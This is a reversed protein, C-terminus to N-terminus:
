DQIVCEWNENKQWESTNFFLEKAENLVFFEPRSTISTKFYFSHDLSVLLSNPNKWLQIGTIYTQAEQWNSITDIAYDSEINTTNTYRTLMEEKTLKNTYIDKEFTTNINWNFRIAKIRPTLKAWSSKELYSAFLTKNIKDYIFATIINNMPFVVKKKELSAELVFPNISDEYNYEFITYTRSWNTNNIDESIIILNNWILQIYVPNINNYELDNESIEKYFSKNKYIQISPKKTDKNEAIYAFLKNSSFDSSFTFNFKKFKYSASYNTINEYDNEDWFIDHFQNKKPKKTSNLTKYKTNSKIKPVPNYGTKSNKISWVYIANESQSYYYVIDNNVFQMESIKNTNYDELLVKKWYEYDTKRTYWYKKHNNNDSISQIHYYKNDYLNMFVISWDNKYFLNWWYNYNYYKPYDSALFTNSSSDPAVFRADWLYYNKENSLIYKKCSVSSDISQNTDQSTKTFNYLYNNEYLDITKQSYWDHAKLTPLDLDFTYVKLWPTELWFWGFYDWTDVGVKWRLSLDVEFDSKYKFNSLSAGYKQYVWLDNKYYFKQSNWKLNLVSTKSDSNINIDTVEEDKIKTDMLDKCNLADWDIPVSSVNRCEYSINWNIYWNAKLDWSIHVGYLVIELWIENWKVTWDFIKLKNSDWFPMKKSSWWDKKWWIQENFVTKDFLIVRWRAYAGAELVAEKWDFAKNEWIAKSFWTKDKDVTDINVKISYNEQVWKELRDKNVEVKYDLPIRIGVWYWAYFSVWIDYVTFWAISYSDGLTYSYSEGLTFWNLLTWSYSIISNSNNNNKNLKILEEQCNTLSKGSLWNCNKEKTTGSNDKLSPLKFNSSNLNVYQSFSNKIQLNTLRVEKPDKSINSDKLRDVFNTKKDIDYVMPIKNIDITETIIRTWKYNNVLNEINNKISVKDCKSTNTKNKTTCENYAKKFLENILDKKNIKPIWSKYKDFSPNKSLFDSVEKSSIIQSNTTGSFISDYETKNNYTYDSKFIIRVRDPYEIIKDEYKVQAKFNDIKKAILYNSRTKSSINFSEKIKPNLSLKVWNIINFKLNSIDLNWSTFTKEQLIIWANNDNIWDKLIDVSVSSVTTLNSVSSEIWKVFIINSFLYIIAIFFSLFKKM